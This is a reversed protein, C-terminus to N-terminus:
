SLVAVEDGQAAADGDAQTGYQSREVKVYRYYAFNNPSEVKSKIFDFTKECMVNRNEKETLTENYFIPEGIHVVKQPKRQNGWLLRKKYTTAVPVAPVRNYSAFRFSTVPFDRLGTYFPWVHAEPFVIIAKKKKLLVSVANNLNRLGMVTDAVPLCGLCKTLVDVVPIQIANKNAIIYAKKPNCISVQGLWADSYHTHNCYVIYGTKKLKRLNRKNKVKTGHLLFSIATLVPIALLYYLAFSFCKFFINSRLYRYNADVTVKLSTKTDLFDDNKEDGYYIIRKDTKAQKSNTQKSPMM